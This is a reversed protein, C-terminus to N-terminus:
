QSSLEKEILGKLAQLFATDDEATRKRPGKLRHGARREKKSIYRSDLLLSINSDSYLMGNQNIPLAGKSLCMAALGYDQTVVVDGRGCLNVLAFDASDTGKDVTIVRVSDLDFIHASDCIVTCPLSNERAVKATLRVVPCGDADIFIQM